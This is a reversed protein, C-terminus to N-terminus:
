VKVRVIVVGSGGNGGNGSVTSTRGGGGGGGGTNVTGNSAATSSNSGAAGGGVGGIGATGGLAGGGGGGARTVSSGTISNALGSGGDGAVSDTADTGASGAGGGGGGTGSAGNAGNSGLGVIGSGGVGGAGGTGTGAGGGSGGTLGTTNDFTSFRGLGGGGGGVAPKSALDSTLDAIKSQAIAASANIDANVITGDLIKASTVANSALMTETVTGTGNIFANPEDFDRASVGHQVAAGSSHAVASTGDVGRTVTLTTGSRASVEVIEENVTDQDLILTYPFSSPWGSVATVSLTTTTDDVGTALTTRAATSSYFRRAM